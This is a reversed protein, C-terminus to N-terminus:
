SEGKLQQVQEVMPAPVAWLRGGARVLVTQAVALTLPLYLMFETGKGLTSRVEVRGGLAAIEARVVDMGIGRGSIQTVKSATSFGPQFLCEILQQEAPEADAAILGLSRARDRVKAFDIGAGDDALTIVVENGVQRVTLEIEGTEPKGVQVRADRTELGHDLANRLLHEL